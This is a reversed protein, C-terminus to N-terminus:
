ALKPRIRDFMLPVYSKTRTEDMSPVTAAAHLLLRLLLLVLILVM